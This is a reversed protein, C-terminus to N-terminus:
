NQSNAVPTTRNKATEIWSPREPAATAGVKAYRSESSIRAVDEDFPAERVTRYSHIFGRSDVFMRLSVNGQGFQGDSRASGRVLYLTTGNRERETVSTNAVSFPELRSRLGAGSAGFREGGYAEYRSYTITGNPFTQRQFLQGDRSWVSYAATGNGESVYQVGEDPPGARLISTSQGVISGNSAMSTSNSRITFSKNRLVSTHAGVLVSPNEIGEGTLGPALQPVPTPTPKDTPVAAPTVTETPQDSGGFVGSCGALVVLGAVLLVRLKM